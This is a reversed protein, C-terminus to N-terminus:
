KRLAKPRSLIESVILANRASQPNRLMVLLPSVPISAAQVSKDVSFTGLDERVKQDVQSTLHPVDREAQSAIRQGMATSVHERLSTGLDQSGVPREGPRPSSADVAPRSPTGAAPPAQKLRPVAPAKKVKSVPQPRPAPQPRPTPKSRQRTEDVVEVEDVAITERTAPKRGSKQELFEEIEKRASSNKPRNPNRRPPEKKNSVANAIAAGISIIGFLIAVIGDFDVALIPETM